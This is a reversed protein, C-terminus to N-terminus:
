SGTPRPALSGLLAELGGARLEEYVVYGLGALLGGGLGLLLTVLKKPRIPKPEAAPQQVVVANTFRGQDLASDIRAETGRKLYQLYKAESTAVLRQVRRAELAKADLERMRTGSAAVQSELQAIREAVGAREARTRALDRSTAIRTPSPAIQTQATGGKVEAEIASSAAALKRANEVLLPSDPQYRELLRARELELALKEQVLSQLVFDSRGETTGTRMTAPEQKLTAQYTAIRQDLEALTRQAEVLQARLGTDITEEARREAEFDAVDAEHKLAQLAQEHGELEKELESAQEDFFAAADSRRHVELHHAEYNALIRELVVRAFEPDGAEFSVVLVNSDKMREASISSEVGRLMRDARTPGPVGHVWAYLDEYLWIPGFFLRTFFGPSAQDLGTDAMTKTLVERSTLVAIESNVEQESVGASVVTPARDVDGALSGGYRNKQILIAARAVYTGPWVFAVLHVAAFVVLFAIAFERKRRALARGLGRLMEALESVGAGEETDTQRRETDSM